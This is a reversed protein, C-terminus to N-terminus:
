LKGSRLLYRSNQNAMYCFSSIITESQQLHPLKNITLTETKDFQERFLFSAPILWEGRRKRYELHTDIATRAESSCYTIYESTTNEYATIRYINYEAVEKLLKLRLKPLADARM